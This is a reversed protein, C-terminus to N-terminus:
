KLNCTFSALNKYLIEGEPDILLYFLDETAENGEVKGFLCFNNSNVKQALTLDISKDTSYRNLRKVEGNHDIYMGLCVSKDMSDFECGSIGNIASANLFLFFNSNTLVVDVFRGKIRFSHVWSKMGSPAILSVSLLKEGTESANPKESVVFNEGTIEDFLFYVPKGL